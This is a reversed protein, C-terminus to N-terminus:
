MIVNNCKIYIFYIIIIYYLFNIISTKIRNLEIREKAKFIFYINKNNEKM